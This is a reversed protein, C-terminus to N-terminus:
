CFPKNLRWSLIIRVRGQMDVIGLVGVNESPPVSGLPFKYVYFYRVLPTYVRIKRAFPGFFESDEYVKKFFVINGLEISDYEQGVSKIRKIIAQKNQLFLVGSSSRFIIVFVLIIIFVGKLIHAMSQM